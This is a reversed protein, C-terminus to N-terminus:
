PQMAKEEFAPDLEFERCDDIPLCDLSYKDLSNLRKWMSAYSPNLGCVIDGRHHPTRDLYKCSQCNSLCM